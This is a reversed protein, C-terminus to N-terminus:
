NTVISKIVNGKEDQIILIQSKDHWLKNLDKGEYFEFRLIEAEPIMVSVPRREFWIFCILGAISAAAILPITHKFYNKKAKLSDTQSFEPIVSKELSFTVQNLLANIMDKDKAASKYLASCETCSKLHTLIENGASPTVEGDLYEQIEIRNLCKM